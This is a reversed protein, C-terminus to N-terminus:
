YAPERQPDSAPESEDRSFEDVPNDRYDAPYDLLRGTKTDYFLKCAVGTTSFQRNKLVRLTILNRDHADEAQQNRELAVVIDSLQVISHSGRADRLSIQGGEEHSKGGKDSGKTLHSVLIVCIKLEQVLSRLKTMTVDIAKREDMTVIGSLMISLHDLIIYRCGGALALYRIKALIVDPDVSGFSDYFYVGERGATRDYAAKMTTRDVGKMSVDLREGVEYGVIGLATRDPGEELHIAGINEGCKILHHEIARCATSKGSGTGALLTVVSPIPLLPIHGKMMDWPVVQGEPGKYNTLREWLEGGSLVSDPRWPHADFNAQIIAQVKGAKLCDNADKLPLKAIFAKGPPLVSAAEEIAKQGPEDNDFMLIIREYGDLWEYAESLAKKASQAGDALSVVPWRNQQAQSVSLADIEGETIIIRKGSSPWLHMGYLPEADKKDGLWTFKKDRTRLKQAVVRGSSNYEQAVHVTDGHKNKGTGYGWKQCTEATLGRAPIGSFELDEIM